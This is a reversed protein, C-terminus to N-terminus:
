LDEGRPRNKFNIYNIDIGNISTMTFWVIGSVPESVKMPLCFLAEEMEEYSLGQLPQKYRKQYERQFEEVWDKANVEPHLFFYVADYEKTNAQLKMYIREDAPVEPRPNVCIYKANRNFRSLLTNYKVRTDNVESCRPYMVKIRDVIGHNTSIFLTVSEGNFMGTMFDEYSKREFGKEKLSNYMQEKTGGIPVGVFKFVTEDTDVLGSSVFAYTITGDQIAPANASQNFHARLAASRAAIWVSNNTTTTGEAGATAETVNGYQDVKISVVVTGEVQGSTTLKPLSGVLSRGQVNAAATGESRQAQVAVTTLFIALISVIMKKMIM